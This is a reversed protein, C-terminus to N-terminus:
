YTNKYLNIKKSIKVVDDSKTDDNFIIAKTKKHTHQTFLLMKAAFYADETKHYDLHDRSLNTFLVCDFKLGALRQQVLGHSSAEIVCDTVGNKALYDLVPYLIEPDPTTHHIPYPVSKLIDDSINAGILGLTGISVIKRNLNIAIIQRIFDAISTKGNTGTVAYLKEPRNPYLITLIDVLVKRADKVYWVPVAFESDTKIDTIICTAGSNIAQQAYDLGNGKEGNIAVFAFDPKIKRSDATVGIINIDKIHESTDSNLESLKM